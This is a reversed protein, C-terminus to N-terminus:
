PQGIPGGAKIGDGPGVHRFPSCREEALLPIYYSIRAIYFRKSLKQKITTILQSVNNKKKDRM